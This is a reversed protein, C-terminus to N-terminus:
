IQGEIMCNELIYTFFYGAVECFTKEKLDLEIIRAVNVVIIPRFNIDRGVM